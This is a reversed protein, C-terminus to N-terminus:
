PRYNRMHPQHILTVGHQGHQTNVALWDQGTACSGNWPLYRTVAPLPKSWPETTLKVQVLESQSSQPDALRSHWFPCHDPENGEQSRSNSIFVRNIQCFINASNDQFYQKEIIAYLGLYMPLDTSYITRTRSVERFQQMDVSQRMCQARRRVGAHQFDLLVFALCM